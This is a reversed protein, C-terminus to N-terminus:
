PMLSSWVYLSVGYFPGIIRTGLLELIMVAAGTITVTGYLVLPGGSNKIETGDERLRASFREFTENM